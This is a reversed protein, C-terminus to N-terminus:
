GQFLVPMIQCPILSFAQDSSESCPLLEKWLTGATAWIAGYKEM